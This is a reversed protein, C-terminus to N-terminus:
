NVSHSLPVFCDAISFFEVWWCKEHFQSSRSSELLRLNLKLNWSRLLSSFIGFILQSSNLIEAFRTFNMVLEGMISRPIFSFLSWYHLEDSCSIRWKIQPESNAKRKAVELKSKFLLQQHYVINLCCLFEKEAENKEKGRSRIGPYRPHSQNRHLTTVARASTTVLRWVVFFENQFLKTDM